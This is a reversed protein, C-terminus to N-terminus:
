QSVAISLPPWAVSQGGLADTVYVQFTFVGSKTTTGSIVGSTSLSLGPPLKTGPSLSWTYPGVGGGGVLRSGYSSGRSTRPLSRTVRVPTGVVHFSWSIAPQGPQQITAVYTGRALPSKPILLVANYAQLIELGAPGYVADTSVYNNADVVCLGGSQSTETAGGPIKLSATLGVAPNQTLQAILPLGVAASSSWKCSQLPSPMEGDSYSTLDTLMGPGPFLVPGTAPPNENSGSGVDIGAM